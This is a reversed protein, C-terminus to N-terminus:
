GCELKKTFLIRAELCCPFWPDHSGFFRWELSDEGLLYILHLWPIKHEDSFCIKGFFYLKEAQFFFTVRCRGASSKLMLKFSM